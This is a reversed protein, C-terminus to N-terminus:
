AIREKHFAQEPRACEGPGEGVEVAHRDPADDRDAPRNGQCVVGLRAPAEEELLPLEPGDIDSPGPGHPRVPLGQRGPRQGADIRTRAGLLKLKLAAVGGVRRSEEEQATWRM